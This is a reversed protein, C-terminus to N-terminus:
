DVLLCAPLWSSWTAARDRRLRQLLGYKHGTGYIGDMRTTGSFNISRTNDEYECVCNSACNTNNINQGCHGAGSVLQGDAALPACVTGTRAM